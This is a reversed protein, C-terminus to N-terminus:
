DPARLFPSRLGKIGRIEYYVQSLISMQFGFYALQGRIQLM